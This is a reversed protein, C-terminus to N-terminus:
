AKNEITLRMLLCITTTETTAAPKIATKAATTAKATTAAAKFHQSHKRGLV